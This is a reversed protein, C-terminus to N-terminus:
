RARMELLRAPRRSADIVFDIRTALQTGDLHGIATARFVDGGTTLYPALQRLQRLDILREDLLWALTQHRRTVEPNGAGKRQSALIADALPELMGPVSLLVPRTAENVNIRGTITMAHTITLRDSIERLVRDVAAPDESWSSKLITERGDVDIRVSSGILDLLSTVFYAPKRSLDLGGRMIPPETKKQALEALSGHSGSTSLDDDETQGLQKKVRAKAADTRLKNAEESDDDVDPEDRQAEVGETNGVLRWAVIFRAVDTNFEAELSDFLEVLNSHNVNIKASGDHRLNSERSTLTLFHSWPLTETHRNAEERGFLLERTVGRVHLLEELSEIRSQKPSRPPQQASYYSSEAGFESPEDDEDMWDLIADAIPETMNPLAMLMKRALRRKHRELPLANLNLKASENWLGIQQAPAHTFDVTTESPILVTFRGIGSELTAVPVNQFRRVNGVTPEILRTRQDELFAAASEIGSEALARTQWSRTTARSAQLEALMLEAFSYASFSLLMVVVLVLLLVTGRRSHANNSPRIKSSGRM